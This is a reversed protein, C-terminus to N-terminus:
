LVILLLVFKKPTLVILGSLDKIKPEGAHTLTGRSIEGVEELTVTV